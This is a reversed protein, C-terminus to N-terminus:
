QILIRTSNPMLSHVTRAASLPTVPDSLPSVVLMPSALTDKWPGAFREPERGQTPWFECAGDPETSPVTLAFRPTLKLLELTTATLEEPNAGDKTVYADACSVASRSLDGMENARPPLELVRTRLDYLPTPDGDLAQAFLRAIQPWASPSAVAQFLSARAQGSTLIGPRSHNTIPLPNYYLKNLYDDLREAINSATGNEKTLPCASPGAEVCAKIIWEYTNESDTMLIQLWKHTPVNGWMNPDVVGDIVVRGAREPFMGVLYAGVITGYSGGWFNLPSGRGDFIDAIHAIDRVVTSTGMYKLEEGYKKGCIQYQAAYFARWAGWQQLIHARGEASEPNPPLEFGRDLITGLGFTQRAFQSPFCQVVPRSLHIGRGDFGVIDFAGNVIASLAEAFGNLAMRVGSGGPGGAGLFITGKSTKATARLRAIAVTSTGASANLYDKPVIVNTCEFNPQGPCPFSEAGTRTQVNFDWDSDLNAYSSSPQSTHWFVPYVNWYVLILLVITSLVRAGRSCTKSAAPTEQDHFRSAEAGKKVMRIATPAIM